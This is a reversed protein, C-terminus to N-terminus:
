SRTFTIAYEPCAGAADQAQGVLEAPVDLDQGAQAVFGEEDDSLLDPAVAYCRGHGMCKGQAISLTM